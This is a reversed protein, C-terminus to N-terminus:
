QDMSEWPTNLLFEIQEPETILRCVYDGRADQYLVELVYPGVVFARGKSQFYEPDTDNVLEASFMINGDGEIEFQDPIYRQQTEDWKKSIKLIAMM